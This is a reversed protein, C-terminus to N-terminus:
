DVLAGVKPMTHLRVFRGYAGARTGPSILRPYTPIMQDLRRDLLALEILCIRCIDARREPTLLLDTGVAAGDARAVEGIALLLLERSCVERRRFEDGHLVPPALLALWHRMGLVSKGSFSFLAASPFAAPAAALTDAVLGKATSPTLLVSGHEWLWGGVARYAWSIGRGEEHSATWLLFHLVDARVAPRMAHIAHATESLGYRQGDKELLGVLHAIWVPETRDTFEYDARVRAVLDGATAFTDHRDRCLVDLLTLLNASSCVPDVHLTVRQAAM